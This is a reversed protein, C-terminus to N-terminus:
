FNVLRALLAFRPDSRLGALEPDSRLFVMPTSRDEVAKQLWQFAQDKEGLGAHILAIAYPPVYRDAPRSQLSQLVRRAQGFNGSAGYAHGLSGEYYPDGASLQVAQEFEPIALAYEGRLEYLEALRFHTRPFAPDIEIAKKLTEIARDYQGALAFTWGANSSVIMSLPDDQLATQAEALAESYDGKAALSEGYWSHAMAYHPNEALARRFENNAVSANWDYYFNIFGLTAHAAALSDDMRLARTGAEKAAPFAEKPPLVAYLGLTAYSDAVGVYAEAFGPDLKIAQQFYDLGKKLASDTRKNWFYRGKMYAEYAAPNETSRKTFKLTEAGTLKLRISQAALDALADELAFVDTFKRDFTDAWLQLGDRVRILQVTLRVRDSDRQIRGDLVADVGQERGIEQPSLHTGAYQQIASTPRVTIRGTNALKTIVADAMGLELFKDPSNTGLTQFPLVALSGVMPTASASKALNGRRSLGLGIAISVIVAALILFGFLKKKSREPWTPPAPPISLQPLVAPPQAEPKNASAIVLADDDLRKVEAVFRYGRKSVTEIYRHHGRDDNLAKRLLSITVALNGEEIFSGPWVLRLLEEKEVLHGSRDVLALLLDFAKPTLSVPQGDCLLLREPPDLQFPGFEYLVNVPTAM